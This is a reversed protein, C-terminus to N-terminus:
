ETAPRLGPTEEKEPGGFQCQGRSTQFGLDPLSAATKRSRRPQGPGQHTKRTTGCIFCFRGVMSKLCCHSWGFCWAPYGSGRRAQYAVNSNHVWNVESNNTLFATVFFYNTVRRKFGFLRVFACLAAFHYIQHWQQSRPM